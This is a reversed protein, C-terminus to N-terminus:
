WVSVAKQGDRDGKAGDWVAFAVPFTGGEQLQVDFPGKSRLERAFVVKWRGAVYLGQGKM